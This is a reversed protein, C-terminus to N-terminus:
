ESEFNQCLDAIASNLDEFGEFDDIDLDKVEETILEITRLNIDEISQQSLFEPDFNYPAPGNRPWDAAQEKGKKTKAKAKAAAVAQQSTQKELELKQVEALAAASDFVAVVGRKILDDWDIREYDEPSVILENANKLYGNLFSM